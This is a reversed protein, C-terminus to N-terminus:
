DLLGRALAAHAPMQFSTYGEIAVMDRMPFIEINGPGSPPNSNIALAPVASLGATVLGLAVVGAVTTRARGPPWHRRPPGGPTSSAIGLPHAEGERTRRASM